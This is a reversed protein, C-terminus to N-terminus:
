KDEKDRNTALVPFVDEKTIVILSFVFLVMISGYICLVPREASIDTGTM